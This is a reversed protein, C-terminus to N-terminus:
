EEVSYYIVLKPHLSPDNNDSSGFLMRRYYEETELKLMFGYNTSPDKIMDKLLQTVDIDIYHQVENQTQSLVVQNQSTTQPQNNWTVLEEDWESVVKQLLCLNSGSRTSHSGNSISNYSYLSLRVSDIRADVPIRSFDFKILSRVTNPLGEATWAAAMFSPHTGLNRDPEYTYIFADMGNVASPQLTENYHVLTKDKSCSLCFLCIGFISILISKKKM